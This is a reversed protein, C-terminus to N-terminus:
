LWTLATSYDDSQFVQITEVSETGCKKKKINKLLPSPFWGEKCSTTQRPRCHRLASGSVVCVATWKGLWPLQQRAHAALSHICLGPQNFMKRSTDTEFSMWLLQRNTKVSVLWDRMKNKESHWKTSSGIQTLSLGLLRPLCRACESCERVTQQRIPWVWMKVQANPMVYSGFHSSESADILFLFFFCTPNFPM